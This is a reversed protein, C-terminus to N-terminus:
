GVPQARQDPAALVVQIRGGVGKGQEVLYDRGPEPAAQGRHHVRQAKVRPPATAVQLQGPAAPHGGDRHEDVGVRQLAAATVPCAVPGHGRRHEVGLQPPHPRSDRLDAALSPVQDYAGLRGPGLGRVGRARLGRRALLPLPRHPHAQHQLERPERPTIVRGARRVPQGRHGAGGGLRAQLSDRQHVV